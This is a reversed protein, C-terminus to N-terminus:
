GVESNININLINNFDEQCSSISGREFCTVRKFHLDIEILGLSVEKGDMELAM